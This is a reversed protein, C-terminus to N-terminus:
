YELPFVQEARSWEALRGQEALIGGSLVRPVRRDALVVSPSFFFFVRTTWIFDKRLILILITQASAPLFRCTHDHAHLSANSMSIFFRSVWEM